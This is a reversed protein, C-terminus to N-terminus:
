DSLVTLRFSRLVDEINERFQEYESLSQKIVVVAYVCKARKAVYLTGSFSGTEASTGRFDVAYLETQESGVNTKDVSSSIETVTVSSGLMGSRLKDQYYIMVKDLSASKPDFDPVHYFFSIKVKDHRTVVDEEDENAAKVKVAPTLTVVLGTDKDLFFGNPSKDTQWDEPHDFRFFYRSANFTVLGEGPGQETLSRELEVLLPWTFALAVVLVFLFLFFIRKRKYINEDSYYEENM